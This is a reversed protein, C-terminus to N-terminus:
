KAEERRKVDLTAGEEFPDHYVYGQAALVGDRFGEAYRDPLRTTWKGKNM